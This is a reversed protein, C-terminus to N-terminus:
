MLLRYRFLPLGTGSRPRGAPQFVSDNGIGALTTVASSPSKAPACHNRWTLMGFQVVGMPSSLRRNPPVSVGRTVKWTRGLWVYVTSLPASNPKSLMLSQVGLPPVFDAADCNM